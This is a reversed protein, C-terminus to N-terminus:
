VVAKILGMTESDGALLGADFNNYLSHLHRPQMYTLDDVTWSSMAYRSVSYTSLLRFCRVLM